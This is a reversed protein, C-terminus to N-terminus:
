AVTMHTSVDDSVKDNEHYSFIDKILNRVYKHNNIKEKNYLACRHHPRGESFSQYRQSSM